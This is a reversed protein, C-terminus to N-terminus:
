VVEKLRDIIYDPITIAIIRKKNEDFGVCIHVGYGKALLTKDEKRYIDFNLTISKEKIEKISTYIELIDDYRAPSIFKCYTEGIAFSVGEEFLDRISIGFSHFFDHEAIDFWGFFNPYFVIGAQDTEGWRVKIETISKKM